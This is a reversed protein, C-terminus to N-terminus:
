LCSFNEVFIELNIYVRTHLEMKTKESVKRQVWMFFYALVTTGLTIYNIM